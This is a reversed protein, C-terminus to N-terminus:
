NLWFLCEVNKKKPLIFSFRHNLNERAESGETARSEFPPAAISSIVDDTNPRARIKEGSSIGPNVFATLINHIFSLNRSLKMENIDM